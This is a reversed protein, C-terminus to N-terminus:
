ISYIYWLIGFDNMRRYVDEMEWFSAEFAKTALPRLADRELTLHAKAEALREEQALTLLQSNKSDQSLTLSFTAFTMSYRLWEWGNTDCFDHKHKWIAWALCRAKFKKKESSSTAAQSTPCDEEFLVEEAKPDKRLARPSFVHSPIVDSSLLNSSYWLRDRDFVDHLLLCSKAFTACANSFQSWPCNFAQAIRNWMTGSREISEEAFHKVRSELDIHCCFENMMMKDDIWRKELLVEQRQFVLFQVCWFHQIASLCLRFPLSAVSKSVRQNWQLFSHMAFVKSRWRVHFLKLVIEAPFIGIGLM